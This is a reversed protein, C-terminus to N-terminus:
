GKHILAEILNIREGIYRACPVAWSNGLAKYRPGDAAPKGKKGVPVLTYDDPFGQLRECERPTLRRVAMAAGVSQVKNRAELAPARQSGLTPSCEEQAGISRAKAGQGAKFAITPPRAGTALPHSPDGPEPNCRNTKSTIQTEDFCVPILPAGDGDGDSSPGKFDRQKLAPSVDPILQGDGIRQPHKEAGRGYGAGISGTVLPIGRGSGDESGDFGDAKLPHAVVPDQGRTEGTRGFGRGSGGICPSVPHASSKGTERRPAPNGSVSEREFLVAAAPRWDGLYGVVFVRRRRQAVGFYQADLIRYAFGYGCEGMRGLVAGFDAGRDSSLVGPVNEWLIWRPRERRAIELFHWVLQSRADALGGRKGAVSFGQCPTGGCLVDFAPLKWSEQKILDGYNPVEPYHHKLVACPFPEIESFGVPQWGLPRFAVSAAEIGSCVSLFELAVECPSVVGRRM